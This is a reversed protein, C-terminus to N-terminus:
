KALHKFPRVRYREEKAAMGRDVYVMGKTLAAHVLTALKHPTAKNTIAKGLRGAM